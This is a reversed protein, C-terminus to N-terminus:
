EAAVTRVQHVGKAARYRDIRQEIEGGLMILLSVARPPDAAAVAAVHSRRRLEAPLLWRRFFRDLWVDGVDRLSHRPDHGTRWIVFSGRLLSICPGLWCVLGARSVPTLLAAANPNLFEGFLAVAGVAIAFANAIGARLKRQENRAERGDPARIHDRLM